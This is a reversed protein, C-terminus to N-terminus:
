FIVMENLLTSLVRKEVNSSTSDRKGVLSDIEDFFIVSPHSDRAKQFIKRISEESEGVYSSYISASNLYLFTSKTSTALAKV